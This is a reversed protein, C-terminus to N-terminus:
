KHGWQFVFIVNKIIALRYLCDSQLFYKVSVGNSVHIGTCLVGVDKYLKGVLETFEQLHKEM